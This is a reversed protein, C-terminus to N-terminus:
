IRQGVTPSVGDTSFAALSGSNILTAGVGSNGNDYTATLNTTTAAVTIDKFILSGSTDVIAPYNFPSNKSM